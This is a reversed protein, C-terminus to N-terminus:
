LELQVGLRPAEMHWLHLGLSVRWWFFYVIDFSKASKFMHAVMFVISISSLDLVLLPTRAGRSLGEKRAGENGPM